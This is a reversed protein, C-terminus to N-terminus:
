CVGCYFYPLVIPAKTFEITIAKEGCDCLPVVGAVADEGAKEAFARLHPYGQTWGLSDDLATYWRQILMQAAHHLPTDFPGYGYYCHRCSDAFQPIVLYVAMDSSPVLGSPNGKYKHRILRAIPDDDGAYFALLQECHSRQDTPRFEIAVACRKQDWLEFEPSMDFNLVGWILDIAEKVDSIDSTLYKWYVSGLLNRGMQQKQKYWGPVQQM